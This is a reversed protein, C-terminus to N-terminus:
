NTDGGTPVDPHKPASTTKIGTHLYIPTPIVEMNDLDAINETDSSLAVKILYEASPSSSNICIPPESLELADIVTALNTSDGGIIMMSEHTLPIQLSDTINGINYISPPIVRKLKNETAVYFAWYVEGPKVDILSIIGIDKQDVANQENNHELAMYALADLSSIGMVKVDNTIGIGQAVGMAIRLGVFSGPGIGCIVEDIKSISLDSDSLLREIMPLILRHHSKKRTKEQQRLAGKVM